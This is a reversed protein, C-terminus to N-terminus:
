IAETENKAPVMENVEKLDKKANGIVHYVDEM